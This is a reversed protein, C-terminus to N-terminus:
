NLTPRIASLLKTTSYERWIGKVITPRIGLRQANKRRIDLLSDGLALALKDPALRKLQQYYFESGAPGYPAIGDFSFVYDVSQLDAVLQLREEIPNFPRSSGKNMRVGEDLELAVFLLDGSRKAEKLFTTHGIHIVDFVGHALVTVMGNGKARRILEQAQQFSIVKPDDPYHISM